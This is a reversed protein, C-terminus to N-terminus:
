KRDESRTVLTFLEEENDNSPLQWLIRSLDNRRIRETVTKDNVLLSLSIDRYEWTNKLYIIGERSLGQYNLISIINARSMKYNECKNSVSEVGSEIIDNDEYVIM